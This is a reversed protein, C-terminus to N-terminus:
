KLSNSKILCVAFAIVTLIIVLVKITVNLIFLAFLLILIAAGLLYLRARKHFREMQTQM